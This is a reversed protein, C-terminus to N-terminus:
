RQLFRGSLRSGDLHGCAENGEADALGGIADVLAVGAAFSGARFHACAGAFLVRRDELGTAQHLQGPTIRETM